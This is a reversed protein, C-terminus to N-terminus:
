SGQADDLAGFARRLEALGIQHRRRVTSAPMGLRRAIETPEAEDFYRMRLTSHFPERVCELAARVRSALQARELADVPPEGWEDDVVRGERVTRRRDGRLWMLFANRLVCAMWRRDLEADGLRDHLYAALVTEQVLDQAVDHDPAWRTALRELWRRASVVQTAQVQHSRPAAADM